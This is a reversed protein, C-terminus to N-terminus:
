LIVDDIKVVAANLVEPLRAKEEATYKSLVFDVDGMKARLEDNGTGVRIRAFDGSGVEAIISKLGNNGGASGAARYRLKGFELNFDDCVVVVDDLKIKYYRMYERVARGSLNYYDQPKIYVIEGDKAWVAGLRPKDSWKLGKVKFYYDLVFFGTNHRTWNYKTEPNGLGVVLKM